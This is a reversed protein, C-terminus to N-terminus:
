NARNLPTDKLLDENIISVSSGKVPMQFDFNLYNAPSCLYFFGHKDIIELVYHHSFYRTNESYLTKIEFDEPYNIDLFGKMHHVAERCKGTTIHHVQNIWTKEEEEFEGLGLVEDLENYTALHHLPIVDKTDYPSSDCLMDFAYIMAARIIPLSPYKFWQEKDRISIPQAESTNQM